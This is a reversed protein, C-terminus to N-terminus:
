LYFDVVSDAHCYLICERSAAQSQVEQYVVAGACGAWFVLYGPIAVLLPEALLHGKPSMWGPISSTWAGFNWLHSNYILSLSAYNFTPDFFVIMTMSIALMGDTTLKGSERWPKIIWYWAAVLSLIPAVIQYGLLVGEQLGSIEGVPQTPTFNPGMIWDAYSYLEILLLILGLPAFFQYAGGTSSLPKNKSDSIM